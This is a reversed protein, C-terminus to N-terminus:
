DITTYGAEKHQTLDLGVREEHETVRLGMLKDVLKLLIFTVVASYVLTVLVAKLQILFQGPNGHLLGDFGGFSKEAWIGTALAGWIGGVGHVGFADLTDDYKFVAKIFTVAIFCIISAGAGIWIASMPSVFGCAPTIAVLGAVAGTIMGLTTAKKHWLWDCLAWTLGAMATAVHTAIFANGALGNAGLASGANFGFWGFWLLGAGLVAFPLNHPPSMSGVRKGLVLAAVLAAIGANIHVVTGGAFDLAGAVANGAADFRSLFGGLGWVWHAVPDYVLTSWLLMFVCFASFKMREAFAGLILAPTIIAFMAQFIMFVSHPITAAYGTFPDAGVGKLFAWDLNGILGKVDPGFALSYGFIVWQLTILCIVVFCQMLISLVNKKRVLGGYFFALGPIMLFVLATSMLMWATDGTNSVAPPTAAAVAGAVVGAVTDQALGNGALMMMIGFLGCLLGARGVISKKMM